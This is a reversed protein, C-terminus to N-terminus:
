PQSRIVAVCFLAALALSAAAPGAVSEAVTSPLVRDTPPVTDEPAFVMTLLRGPRADPGCTRWAESPVPTGDLLRVSCSNTVHDRGEYRHVHVETVEVARTEGRWVLVAQAAQGPIWWALVGGLLAVAGVLARGANTTFLRGAAALAVVAGVVSGVTDSGTLVGTVATGSVLVATSLGLSVGEAVLRAAPRGSFNAPGWLFARDDSM